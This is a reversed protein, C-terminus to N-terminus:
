EYNQISRRARLVVTKISTTDDRFTYDEVGDINTNGVPVLIATCTRRCCRHTARSGSQHCWSCGCCRHRCSNRRAFIAPCLNPRHRKKYWSTRHRQSRSCCSHRHDNRRVRRADTRASTTYARISITHCFINSIHIIYSNGVAWDGSVLLCYSM